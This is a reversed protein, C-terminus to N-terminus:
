ECKKVFTEPYMLLKSNLFKTNPIKTEFMGKNEKFIM